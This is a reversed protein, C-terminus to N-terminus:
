RPYSLGNDSTITHNLVWIKIRTHRLRASDLRLLDCLEHHHLNSFVSSGKHFAHLLNGMGVRNNHRMYLHALSYWRSIPQFQIFLDNLRSLFYAGQTFYRNNQRQWWKNPFIKWTKLTCSPNLSMDPVYFGCSTISFCLKLRGLFVTINNYLFMKSTSLNVRCGRM